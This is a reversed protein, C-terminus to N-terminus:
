KNNNSLITTDSVKFKHQIHARYSVIRPLRMCAQWFGVLLAKNGSKCANLLHVPLWILHNLLFQKDTINLWIFQFQNRYAAKQIHYPKYQTKIVGEEHEHVVRSKEEFLVHYGCKQARYSLDIDEWYFPNYLENLGGLEEWISKRFAGSGGSVWLTNGKHTTIDGASHVLFGKEWKGIGRGRLVVQGDEISEDMCGVAFIQKDSFHQLLPEWFKKHPVVDTNLLIVIEGTAAKVGRNVNGSFGSNTAYPSKLVVLHINKEKLTTQYEELFSLSRDKSADDSVVLEVTGDSYDKLCAIVKPLNKQLLTEGNYNPMVISIHM